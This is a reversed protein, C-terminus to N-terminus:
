LTIKTIIPASAAGDWSSCGLYVKGDMVMCGENGEVLGTGDVHLIERIARKGTFSYKVGYFPNHSISAYIYGQYYTMGQIVQSTNIGNVINRNGFVSWVVSFAGTYTGGSLTM